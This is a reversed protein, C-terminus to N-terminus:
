GCGGRGLVANPAAAGSYTGGGEMEILFLAEGTKGRLGVLRSGGM